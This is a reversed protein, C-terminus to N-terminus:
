KKNSKIYNLGMIAVLGFTAIIFIEFLMSGSLLSGGTLTGAAAGIDRWTANTAVARIRDQDGVSAGGPAMTSNVSNFTFIIVLGPTIWGFLLLILGTIILLVSVNFVRIFGIKDALMGSVPSFLIFCIRRYALFAAALFTIEAVSLAKYNNTIFLGLVVILVGEVIFSIMLTISNFISPKRFKIFQRTIQKYAIEPLGFAYFLCPLSLISLYLFSQQIPFFDILVPGIWLAFMPGAEQISRSIGLSLGTNENQFAYTIASIRLIAFAMGWAIRFIILSVLGWGLGYGMTSIIALFAAAITTQRIGYRSFLVVVLPNFVIRIFRNISLLFGIWVVPIQMVGYYQPLFPYLFADGFSAFSLTLSAYAPYKLGSSHQSILRLM